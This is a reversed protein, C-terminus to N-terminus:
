RSRRGKVQCATGLLRDFLTTYSSLYCDPYVHHLAHYRPGVILTEHAAPLTTFAVHNRDKGKLFVVVVFLMTFVVMVLVVPLPEMVLLASACVIMQTTYEPIIHWLLNPIEQDNHFNLREDYFDHHAQHPRALRRLWPRPSNLCLHLLSHIVDFVFTAVIFLALAEALVWPWRVADLQMWAPM